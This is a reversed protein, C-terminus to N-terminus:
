AMAHAVGKMSRRNQPTEPAFVTLPSDTADKSWRVRSLDISCHLLGAERWWRKLAPSAHAGDNAFVAMEALGKCRRVRMAAWRDSRSAEAQTTM